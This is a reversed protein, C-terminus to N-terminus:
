NEEEIWYSELMKIAKEYIENNDFDQLDELKDLGGCEDILQAYLNTGNKHLNKEMEGVKLINDLSKLCISLIEPDHCVLLDCLPRVCGKTVLYHIQERSGGSTANSIAWAAEKKIDVEAHQLLEILPSMINANMVAQIQSRSGATINSITLCAHKKIHKQYNQALLQYLCPLVNNDIMLQTQAYDGASINAVTIIAPTLVDPSLHLLLKILQPCVGAEIVAQIGSNRCDSLYSLIRCVDALIKEDISHILHRLIQLIAQCKEDPVTGCCLNALSWTATRLMSIRAHENLQSLLPILAGHDVVLERCSESDGAVNGLAWVAQERVDHHPSSLLDVLKPIADCKTVLQTHESTGSSIDSLICAAEFQLQPLEHRSLFEVFRPLIGAEIVEEILSDRDTSLLKSFKITAELQLAPNESRIGEVMGPLIELKADATATAPSDTPSGLNPQPRADDRRKKFLSGYRKRKRLEVLLDERRKTAQDVGVGPKYSKRRDVEAAKPRLSM